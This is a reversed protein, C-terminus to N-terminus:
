VPAARASPIQAKLEALTTVRGVRGIFDGLSSSRARLERLADPIETSAAPGEAYNGHFAFYAQNLRRFAYGQAVLLQREQEMYAEADDVQGHALLEDVNVRIRRLTDILNRDPAQGGARPREGVGLAAREAVEQGVLDATTENIARAEPSRGYAQGLPAFFLATHTWEHAITQMARYVDTEPAILTPYTSLGGTPEALASVDLREVASELPEASQLSVDEDLLVAEALRIETRPSVILVAPPKEVSFAVPPFVSGGLTAVGGTRLQETVAAALVREAERDLLQGPGQRRFLDALQANVTSADPPSFIQGGVLGLGSVIHRLEWDIASWSLGAALQRVRWHLYDPTSGVWVALVVWAALTIRAFAGRVSLHSTRESPNGATVVEAESYLRGPDAM